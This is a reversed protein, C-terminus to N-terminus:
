QMKKKNTIGAWYAGVAVTGVAVLWLVALNGDIGSLGTQPAYLQVKVDSGFDQCVFM